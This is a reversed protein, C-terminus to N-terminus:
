PPACSVTTATPAPSRKPSFRRTRRRAPSLRSVGLRAFEGTELLPRSLTDLWISVGAERLQSLRNM